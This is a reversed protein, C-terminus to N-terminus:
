LCFGLIKLVTEFARTAIENCSFKVYFDDPLVGKCLLALSAKKCKEGNEEQESSRLSTKPLVM